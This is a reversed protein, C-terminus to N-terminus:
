RRGEPSVPAQAVVVVRGRSRRAPAAPVGNKTSVRDCKEASHDNLPPPDPPTAFWYAAIGLMCQTQANQHAHTRM